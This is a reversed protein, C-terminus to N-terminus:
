SPLSEQKEGAKGGGQSLESSVLVLSSNNSSVGAHGQLYIVLYSSIGGLSTTCVESRFSFISIAADVSRVANSQPSSSDAEALIIKSCTYCMLVRIHSTVLCRYLTQSCLHFSLERLMSVSPVLFLAPLVFHERRSALLISSIGYVPSYLNKLNMKLLQWGGPRTGSGGFFGSSWM